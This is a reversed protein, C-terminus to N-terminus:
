RDSLSCQPGTYHSDQPPLCLHRLHLYHVQALFIHCHARIKLQGRIVQTEHYTKLVLTVAYELHGSTHM